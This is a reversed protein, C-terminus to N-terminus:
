SASTCAADAETLKQEAERMREVLGFQVIKLKYEPQILRRYISAERIPSYSHRLKINNNSVRILYEMAVKLFYPLKPIIIEDELCGLFHELHAVPRDYNDSNLVFYRHYFDFSLNRGTARPFFRAAEEVIEEGVLGIWDFNTHSTSNWFRVYKQLLEQIRKSRLFEPAWEDLHEAMQFYNYDKYIARLAADNEKQVEILKENVTVMGPICAPENRVNTEPLNLFATIKEIERKPNDV